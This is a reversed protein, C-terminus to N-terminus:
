QIGSYQYVSEMAITNGKMQRICLNSTGLWM